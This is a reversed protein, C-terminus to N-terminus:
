ATTASPPLPPSETASSTPNDESCITSSTSLLDDTGAGAVTGASDSSMTAPPAPLRSGGSEPSEPRVSTTESFGSEDNSPNSLSRAYGVPVTTSPGAPSATATSAPSKDRVEAGGVGAAGGGGGGSSSGGGAGSCAGEAMKADLATNLRQLCDPIEAARTPPPISLRFFQAFVDPPHTLARESRQLKRAGQRRRQQEGSGVNAAPASAGTAGPLSAGGEGGGGGGGCSNDGGAAAAAAVSAWDTRFNGLYRILSRCLTAQEEAESPREDFDEFEIEISAAEGGPGGGTVDAGGNGGPVAGGAESRDGDVGAATVAQCGEDGSSSSAAVELQQRRQQLEEIAASFSHPKTSGRSGM